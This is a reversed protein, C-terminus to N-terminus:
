HPTALTSPYLSTTQHCYTCAMLTQDYSKEFSLSDHNQIAKGLPEIESRVSSDLLSSIDVKKKIAHLSEAAEIADKLKILERDASVWDLAKVDLRLRTMCVQMAMMNMQLAPVPKQFSNIKQSVLLAKQLKQYDSWEKFLLMVTFISAAMAIIQYKKKKNRRSAVM